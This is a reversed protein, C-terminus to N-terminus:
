ELSEDKKVNVLVDKEKRSESLVDADEMEEESIRSAFREFNFRSM